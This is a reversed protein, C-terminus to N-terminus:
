GGMFLHPSGAEVVSSAPIPNLERLPETEVPEFPRGLGSVGRELINLSANYDRDLEGHKYEQSTGRPNVRVVMRGAREAKYSLFHLFKGWSADLIRQALHRNKAMGAINLDEVAIMDYHSVYFRSLKHLFDDRQDVLREYLKALKVRQKGRNRSGRQKRSLNRQEVKIRELTHEYFRPNEVQRGDTDTLFHKIGLDIGIAKGTRPLSSPEDEVRFLAYWRGSREHKITVGKIKGRVERHLKLPIEGVKSLVLKKGKLRFGSQPYTFSKFWGRGKFRLWGIKGGNRKLGALSRLNRSLKLVEEQLVQSYVGKLEPHEEKLKPLKRKLEYLNPHEQEELWGLMLNYVWRCFELTQLLKREQERSPYLRFRYALVERV